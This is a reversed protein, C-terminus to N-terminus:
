QILAKYNSNTIDTAIIANSSIIQKTLLLEQSHLAEQSGIIMPNSELARHSEM